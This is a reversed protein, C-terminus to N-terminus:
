RQQDGRVSVPRLPRIESSVVSPWQALIRLTRDRAKEIFESVDEAAGAPDRALIRDSRPGDAVLDAIDAWEHDLLLAAVRSLDGSIRRYVSILYDNRTAEALVEFFGMGTELRYATDEAPSGAERTYDTASLLLARMRRTQEATARGVGLRALEPGIVRWLEFLDNVSKMTLPTVVYGKRPVTRVLGEHDLRTLAERVAGISVEFDLALGRETVRQGPALRCALIDARV